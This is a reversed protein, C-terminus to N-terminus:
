FGLFPLHSSEFYVREQEALGVVQASGWLGRCSSLVSQQFNYESRWVLGAHEWPSEERGRHTDYCLVKFIIFQFVFTVSTCTTVESLEAQCGGPQKLAPPRGSTM